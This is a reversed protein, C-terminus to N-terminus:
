SKQAAKLLKEAPVEVPVYPRGDDDQLKKLSENIDAVTEVASKNHSALFLKCLPTIFYIEDALKLVKRKFDPHGEGRALAVPTGGELLMWNGVVLGITVTEGKTKSEEISREVYDM